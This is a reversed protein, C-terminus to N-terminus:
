VDFPSTGTDLSGFTSQLTAENEDFLNAVTNLEDVADQMKDDARKINAHAIDWQARMAMYAPGKWCSELIKLARNLSSFADQLEGKASQYETVTERMEETSVLIKEAM